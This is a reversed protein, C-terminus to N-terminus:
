GRAQQGALESPRCGSCAHESRNQYSEAPGRPNGRVSDFPRDASGERGRSHVLRARTRLGIREAHIIKNAMERASLPRVGGQPDYVDGVSEDIRSTIEFSDDTARYMVALEIVARIAKSEPYGTAPSRRRKFFHWSSQAPLPGMWGMEEKM